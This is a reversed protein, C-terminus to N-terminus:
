DVPRGPNLRCGPGFRAPIPQRSSKARLQTLAHTVPLSIHGFVRSLQAYYSLSLDHIVQRVAQQVLPHNDFLWETAQASPHFEGPCIMVRFILAVHRKQLLRTPYCSAM